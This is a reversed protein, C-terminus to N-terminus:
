SINIVEMKYSMVFLEGASLSTKIPQYFSTWELSATGMIICVADGENMNLPQRYPHSTIKGWSQVNYPQKKCIYVQASFYSQQHDHL